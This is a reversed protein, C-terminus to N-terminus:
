NKCNNKLVLIEIKFTMSKDPGNLNDGIWM